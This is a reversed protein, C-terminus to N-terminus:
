ILLVYHYGSLQAVSLYNKHLLLLGHRVSELRALKGSSTLLKPYLANRVLPESGVLSLPGGSSLRVGLVHHQM